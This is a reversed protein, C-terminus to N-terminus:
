SNAVNYSSNKVWLYVLALFALFASIYYSITMNEVKGKYLYGAFLAGIGIGAELAIYTTALARGRYNEHSLDVTWAMLTPTNLGWSFGFAISALVFVTVSDVVAFMIMSIIMLIASVILVPIRGHKDSTKSFFFGLQYLHM